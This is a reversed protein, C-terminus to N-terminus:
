RMQAEEIRRLKELRRAHDRSGSFPTSLFAMTIERAEDQDVEDAALTIINVDDHDRAYQAAEKHAAITARVGRVKNAVIDMGMGSGCLLIGREAKGEGVLLAAAYSFDPYDDHPDLIHAGVDEVTYGEAELFMKLDEKLPFGRHDAALAIKM